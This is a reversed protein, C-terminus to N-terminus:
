SCALEALAPQNSPIALFRPFDSQSISQAQNSIQQFLDRTQPLPGGVMSVPCDTVAGRLRLFAEPRKLQQINSVWLLSVDRDTFSLQADPTDVLSSAVASNVGYNKRLMEQQKASQTLVAAARRLGHEYLKRDRWFTILVEHPDCDADSAVRFILRRDNRATWLM